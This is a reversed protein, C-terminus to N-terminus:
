PGVPTSPCLTDSVTRGKEALEVTDPHSPTCIAAGLMDVLNSTFLPVDSAPRHSSDDLQRRARDAVSGILASISALVRELKVAEPLELPHLLRRLLEPLLQEGFLEPLDEYVYTPNNFIERVIVLYSMAGDGQNLLECYPEVIARCLARPDHDLGDIVLREFFMARRTRLSEGRRGLVARVLGDRGDFHYNVASKNRVDAVRTIERLSVAHIGNRAFLREATDLLAQRDSLTPM